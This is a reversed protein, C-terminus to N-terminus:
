LICEDVSQHRTMLIDVLAVDGRRIAEALGQKEADVRRAVELDLDRAREELASKEKRLTLEAQQAVERRRREEALQHELHRKELAFGARAKQEAQGALTKLGAENEHRFQEELAASLEIETGCNPCVIIATDM